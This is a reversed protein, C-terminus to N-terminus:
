LLNCRVNGQFVCITLALIPNWTGWILKLIVEFNLSFSCSLRFDCCWKYFLNLSQAIELHGIFSVYRCSHTVPLFTFVWWHLFVYCSLLLWRPKGFILNLYLIYYSLFYSMKFNFCSVLYYIYYLSMYVLRYTCFVLLICM